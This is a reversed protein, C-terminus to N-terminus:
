PLVRLYGDDVLRRVDMASGDPARGTMYQLGGGPQDFGPAINALEVDFPRVVEYRHYGFGNEATGIQTPPLSRQSFSTGDPSLFRGGQEGGFRDIFQGPELTVQQETGPVAGHNEPFTWSGDGDPNWYKEVFQEPTSSPYPTYDTVLDAVRPDAKAAEINSPVEDLSPRKEDTAKVDDGADDADPDEAPGESGAPREDEEGDGEGLSWVMRVLTTRRLSRVMTMLIRGTQSRLLVTVGLPSRVRWRLIPGTVLRVARQVTRGSVMRMLTRVM